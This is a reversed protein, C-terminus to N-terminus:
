ARPQWVRPRGIILISCGTDACNAIFEWLFSDPPFQVPGYMSMSAAVLPVNDVVASVLGIILVIIDQRGLTSDLWHVITSLIHTHELVDVALLIGVIFVVSSMDIRALTLRQKRLEEERRHVLDGLLLLLGLRFLIGTFPPLGTLTKFVQELVLIAMGCVFMLKREFASTDMAIGDEGVKHAVVPRDGLLRSNVLLPILLNIFSPLFLSQRIAFTTIKSGIWLM